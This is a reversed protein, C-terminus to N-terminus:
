KLYPLGMTENLFNTFAPNKPKQSDSMNEWRKQWGALSSKVLNKSQANGIKGSSSDIAANLYTRYVDDDVINSGAVQIRYTGLQRAAEVKTLTGLGIQLALREAESKIKALDSWHSDALQYPGSVIPASKSGYTNASYDPPLTLVCGSLALSVVLVSILKKNM